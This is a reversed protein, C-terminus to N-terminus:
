FFNFDFLSYWKKVGNFNKQINEKAQDMAEYILGMTPEEDSDVLRLVKILPSAGNLCILINKWSNKDLVVDEIAKGDRLKSCKNSKWEKSTFM